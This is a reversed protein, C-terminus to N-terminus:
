AEHHFFMRDKFPFLSFTIRYDGPADFELDLSSDTVIATAQAPGEVAVRTNVPIGSFSLGEQVILFEPRPLLVDVPDARQFYYDGRLVAPGVEVLGLGPNAMGYLLRAPCHGARMIKGSDPEYLAYCIM